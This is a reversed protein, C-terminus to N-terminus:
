HVPRKNNTKNTVTVLLNQISHYKAQKDRPHGDICLQRMNVQKNGQMLIAGTVKEEHDAVEM